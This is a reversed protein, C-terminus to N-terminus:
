DSIVGLPHVLVAAHARLLMSDPVDNRVYVNRLVRRVEHRGVLAQLEHRAIGLARAQESTFPVTPILSPDTM